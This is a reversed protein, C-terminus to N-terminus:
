VLFQKLSGKVEDYIADSIRLVGGKRALRQLGPKAIQDLASRWRRRRYGYCKILTPYCRPRQRRLASMSTPTSSAKTPPGM